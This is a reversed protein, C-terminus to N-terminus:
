FFEICGIGCIIGGDSIVFTYWCLEGFVLFGLGIGIFLVVRGKFIIMFFSLEFYVIRRFFIRGWIM